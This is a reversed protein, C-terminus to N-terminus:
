RNLKKFVYLYEKLTEMGMDLLERSINPLLASLLSNRYSSCTEQRDEHGPLEKLVELSRFMTEISFIM